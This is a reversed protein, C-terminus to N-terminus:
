NASNEEFNKKTVYSKKNLLRKDVFFIGMPVPVASFIVARSFCVFLCFIGGSCFLGWFSLM